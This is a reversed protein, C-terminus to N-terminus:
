ISVSTYKSKFFFYFRLEVGAKLCIDELITKLTCPYELESGDYNFEFKVMDDIIRLKCINDNETTPEDLKFEGIPIIEGDIGSKISISEISDDSVALKNIELDIAQAQVNGLAMENNSLIMHSPKCSKIYRGQVDQNNISIKLLHKTSPEYIKSKYNNSVAYM